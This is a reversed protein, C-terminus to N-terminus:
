CKYFGPPIIVPNKFSYNMNLLILNINNSYASYHNRLSSHNIVQDLNCKDTELIIIKAKMLSDDAGQLVKDELGEVDISVLDPENFCPFRQLLDKLTITEVPYSNSHYSEYFKSLVNEYGDENLFMKGMQDSIGTRICKIKYHFFHNLRLKLFSSRSPEICLGTAGLKAFRYTNSFLVGDNAGIDIFSNVGNELLGEVLVDEGHQSYSARITTWNHYIVKSYYKLYKLKKYV